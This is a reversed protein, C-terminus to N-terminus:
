ISGKVYVWRKGESMRRLLRKKTAALLTGSLTTVPYIHGKEELVKKVEVLGQPKDFYGEERMELLLDSLRGTTNKSTRMSKTSTVGHADERRQIVAVIEAVEQSTGEVVIRTGSKMEIRAQAM